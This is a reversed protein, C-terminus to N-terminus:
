TLGYAEAGEFDRGSDSERRREGQRRRLGPFWRRERCQGRARQDPFGLRSDPPTMQLKRTLSRPPKALAELIAGKMESAQKGALKSKILGRAAARGESTEFDSVVSKILANANPDTKAAVLASGSALGEKTMGILGSPDALTVAMGAMMVSGLVESWEEATFDTKTAM